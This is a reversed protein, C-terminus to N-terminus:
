KYELYILKNFNHEEIVVDGKDAEAMEDNNVLFYKHYLYDSGDSTVPDDWTLDLHRWENDIYVGNWVHGTASYSIEDPTTAIKYNDYGLKTLIIAMTDAYGNCTALHDKLLGTAKFSDSTSNGNENRDVDYKTNNIIYDHITKIKDYDNMDETINDSIIKDIEENIYNIEDESYLHTIKLNVEGSESISANLHTFNNYPHVFNNLHTLLVSDDCIDETDKLCTSYESPCYFTFEDWGNNIISFMIDLLDQYSYPVYDKSLSVFEYGKKKAYDNGPLIVPKPTSDFLKVAMETLENNNIFCYIGILVFFSLFILFKKM